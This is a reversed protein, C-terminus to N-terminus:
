KSQQEQAIDVLPDKSAENNRGNVEHGTRRWQEGWSEIRGLIKVDVNSRRSAYSCNHWSLWLEWLWAMAAVTAVNTGHYDCNGCDHWLLWLQWLRAMAAVTAMAAVAAVNTGHYGCNGCKHWGNKEPHRLTFTVRWKATQFLTLSPPRPSPVFPIMFVFFSSLKPFIQM